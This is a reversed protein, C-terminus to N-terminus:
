CWGVGGFYIGNCRGECNYNVHFVHVGGCGCGCGCGYVGGCGCGCGCGYVGGIFIMNVIRGAHL